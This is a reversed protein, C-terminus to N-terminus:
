AFFWDKWMM